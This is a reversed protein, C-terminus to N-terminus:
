SLSVLSILRTLRWQIDLHLGGLSGYRYSGEKGQRAGRGKIQIEEALEPAYFAQIVHVGGANLMAEDHCKFDTGRGYERILLSVAGQDTAKRFLADKQAGAIDETITQAVSRLDGIVDSRYFELLTKSSDFFVMVSRRIGHAGNTPRRRRDIESRLELFFDDKSRCPIM